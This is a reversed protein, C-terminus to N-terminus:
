VAVTVRLFTAPISTTGGGGSKNQGTFLTALEQHLSDARGAEEAAEFANMTPGYYARFLDLLDTPSGPYNFVYTKRAFAIRDRPVGAGAFRKAVTDEIGWTM